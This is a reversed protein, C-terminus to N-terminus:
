SRQLDTLDTLNRDNDVISIQRVRLPAFAQPAQDLTLRDEEDQQRRDNILVKPLGHEVVTPIVDCSLGHLSLVQHWQHVPCERQRATSIRYHHLAPRDCM